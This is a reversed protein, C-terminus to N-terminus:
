GKFTDVLFPETVAETAEAGDGKREFCSVALRVIGDPLEPLAVEREGGPAIAIERLGTGCFGGPFRTWERGTWQQATVLASLPEDKRDGYAWLAIATKRRNLLVGVGPAKVRFEIGEPAKWAKRAEELSTDIVEFAAPDSSVGGLSVRLAYRGPALRGFARRLDGTVYWAYGGPEVEAPGKYAVAEKPLPRRAAPKGGTELILELAPRDGEAGFAAKGASANRLQAVFEVAAYKSAPPVQVHWELDAAAALPLPLLALLPLFRM